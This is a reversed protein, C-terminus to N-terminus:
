EVVRSQGIGPTRKPSIINFVSIFNPKVNLISEMTKMAEPLPVSAFVSSSSRTRQWDQWYHWDQWINFLIYHIRGYITNLALDYAVVYHDYFNFRPTLLPLFTPQHTKSPKEAARRPVAPLASPSHLKQSAM